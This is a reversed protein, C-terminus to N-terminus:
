KGWKYELIVRSGTGSAGATNHWALWTNVAQYATTISIAVATNAVLTGSSQALTGVTATIATGVATGNNNLQGTTVTAASDRVLWARILTIGGHGAPVKFLPVNATGAAGVFGSFIMVEEM